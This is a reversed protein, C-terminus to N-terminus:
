PLDGLSGPWDERLLRSLARGALLRGGTQCSACDNCETDRYVIRQVAGLDAARLIQISARGTSGAETLFLTGHEFEFAAQGSRLGATRDLTRAESPREGGHASAIKDRWRLRGAIMLHLAAFLEGGPRPSPINAGGSQEFGLVVRKGTRRVDSLRRGALSAAPPDVTQLVFPRVIRLRDLRRGIARETLADVYVVLDPLEPM